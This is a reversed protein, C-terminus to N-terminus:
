SIAGFLGPKVVGAVLKRSHTPKQSWAAANRPLSVEQTAALQVALVDRQESNPDTSLLKPDVDPM